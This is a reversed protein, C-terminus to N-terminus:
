SDAQWRSARESDSERADVWQGGDPGLEKKWFPAQTKLYDMIFECASFSAGRHSSSVGVWVIQDGPVLKGVRHVVGASLVPWRKTSEQLIQMVSRETMGPYHELELSHVQRDQNDVRVYGTFTAVAGEAAGGQLLQAQLSAVDFDETQVAVSLLPKM